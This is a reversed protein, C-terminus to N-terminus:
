HFTQNTTTYTKHLNFDYLNVAGIINCYSQKEWITFVGHNAVELLKIGYYQINLVLSHMRLPPSFWFNGGYTVNM